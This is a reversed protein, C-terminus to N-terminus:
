VRVGQALRQLRLRVPPMDLWEVPTVLAGIELEAGRKSLRGGKSRGARVRPDTMNMHWTACSHSRYRRKAWASPKDSERRMVACGPRGCACPKTDPTM